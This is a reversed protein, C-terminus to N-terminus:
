FGIGHGGATVIEMNDNALTVASTAWMVAM